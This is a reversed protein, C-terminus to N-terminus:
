SQERPFMEGHLTYGPNVGLRPALFQERLIAELLQNPTRFGMEASIKEM